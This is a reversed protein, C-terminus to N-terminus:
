KFIKQLQQSIDFAKVSHTLAGVSIYDVGTAAVERVNELTINGSAETKAEGDILAVAKKMQATSMNDLMIIDAGAALAEKVEDISTTEVEIKLEPYQKRVKQVAQGIGGAAVIHNDKIMAMDYLGMRHNTGGGAAVAYKDLLRLGPATKRTDLIKAPYDGVAETYRDTMTAIGSMRQAINLAIREASLIARCAGQLEVVETGPEVSNGEELRPKWELEPDLNQFVRRAIELGAVIGQEKAIWVARAQLEEDVIANTTADGTKLDEELAREILEQIADEQTVKTKLENM